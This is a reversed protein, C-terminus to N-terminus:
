VVFIIFWTTIKSPYSTAPLKILSRQLRPHVNTPVMGEQSEVGGQNSVFNHAVSALSEVKAFLEKLQTDKPGDGHQSPVAFLQVQPNQVPSAVESDRGSRLQGIGSAVPLQLPM